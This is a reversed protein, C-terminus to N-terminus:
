LAFYRNGPGQRVLGAIEMRLLLSSIVAFPWKFTASILEPPQGGSQSLWEYLQRARGQDEEPFRAFLSPEEAKRVPDRGAPFFDALIDEPSDVLRAGEKILSHTGRQNEGYFPGPVAYVERNEDAATHATIMAGSKEAAEVVLVGRSLGVIIRNRRPFFYSRPAEWPAHEPVLAGSAAIQRFLARHAAPYLHEFGGGLVAITRGGAALAAQHAAADIGYAGGSVIVIGRGALAGTLRGAASLGYGSAKRSGVVALAHQLSPLEGWVYLVPPPDSIEKLPAPYISGSFACIRVGKTRCYSDLKEPLHRDYQARYHALQRETFLGLRSLPDPGAEFAARASGFHAYLNEMAPADRGPMLSSLAAEYIAEM